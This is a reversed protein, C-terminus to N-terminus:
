KECNLLEEFVYVKENHWELYGGEVAQGGCEGAAASLKRGHM